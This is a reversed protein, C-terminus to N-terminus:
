KLRAAAVIPGGNERQILVVLPASGDISVEMALDSRGTWRRVNQWDDVINAYSFVKGANEGRKISVKEAPRYRVVHVNMPTSLETSAAISVTGGNRTVQLDVLEPAAKHAEILREVKNPHAGVVHDQGNVIMQPTYVSRHGAARAYSHQRQTFAPNAFEDKWGIYDWYDVHLALAIVDERGALQERLYADAPPCSSCGQSTYLEVVVPSEQAAVTSALSLWLTAFIATTRIM